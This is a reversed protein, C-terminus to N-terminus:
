NRIDVQSNATNFTSITSSSLWSVVECSSIYFRIEKQSLQAALVTSYIERYQPHDSNVFIANSQGCPFPNGFNGLVRFGSAGTLNISTPKAWESYGAAGFLQGSVVLLMVMLVGM